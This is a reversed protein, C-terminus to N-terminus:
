HVPIKRRLWDRLLPRQYHLVVTQTGTPILIAMHILNAKYPQLTEGSDSQATWWPLWVQNILLVGGQGHTSVEMKDNSLKMEVSGKALSPKLNVADSKSVVAAGTLAETGLMRFLEAGSATDAIPQVQKAWWVRPLPKEVEYVRVPDPSSFIDKLKHRPRETTPGDIQALYASTLPRYSLLYRIGALRLLNIDALQDIELAQCCQNFASDFGFGLAERSIRPEALMVKQWYAHSDRSVLTAGGDYTAFGYNIMSNTDLLGPLSVVRAETDQRWTPSRLNPINTLYELNGRTLTQLLTEIKLVATMTIAMAITVATAWRNIYEGRANSHLSGSAAAAALLVIGLAIYEWYWRYTKLFQLGMQDWPVRALVVVAFGLMLSTLAAWLSRRSKGFIGVCLAFALPIMFLPGPHNYRFAPGMLWDIYWGLPTVVFQTSDRASFPLMLFFAYIAESYNALWLVTFIVLGCYAFSKSRPQIWLHVASVTVWVAPLWYFPDSTSIYGVGFLTLLLWSRLDNRGAFLLYLLLPIGALSIGYLFTLTATFDYGVAYLAGLSFALTPPCRLLGTSFMYVGLLAVLPVILRSIVIVSWLPLYQLLILRLSFLEGGIRGFGYRDVGGMLDMLFVSDGQAALWPFYGTFLRDGDGWEMRSFPGPLIGEAQIFLVWAVGLVILTTQRPAEAVKRLLYFTLGSALIFLVWPGIQMLLEFM